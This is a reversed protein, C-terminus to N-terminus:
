NNENLQYSLGFGLQVPLMNRIYQEVVQNAEAIGSKPVYLVDSPLLEFQDSSSSGKDLRGAIDISWNEYTNDDKRRFLRVDEAEATPMLGGAAAVAMLPSTPRSFPVPGPRTVEGIVYIVPATSKQLQVMVYLRDGFLKQYKAKIESRLDSLTSNISVSGIFPLDIFPSHGIIVQLPEYQGQSNVLRLLPTLPDRSQEISVVVKPAAINNEVYLSTLRQGLAEVGQGAVKVRGILPLSVHGDPLVTSIDKSLLPHELVDVKIVDGPSIVYPTDTIYNASFFGVAVVDGLAVLPEVRTVNQLVASNAVPLPVRNTCGSLVMLIFLWTFSLRMSNM